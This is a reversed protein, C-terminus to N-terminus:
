SRGQRNRRWDGKESGSTAAASVWIPSAGVHRSVLPSDGEPAASPGAVPRRAIARDPREPMAVPMEPEQGGRAFAAAQMPAIQGCRAHDGQEIAIGGIELRCPWFEITVAMLEVVERFLGRAGPQDRHADLFSQPVGCRVLHAAWANPEAAVIPQHAVAAVDQDETIHVRHGGPDPDAIRDIRRVGFDRPRIRHRRRRLRRVPHERRKVQPAEPERGRDIPHVGIVHLACTLDRRQQQEAPDAQPRQTRRRAPVHVRQEDARGPRPLVVKCRKM